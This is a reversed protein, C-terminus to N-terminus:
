VPLDLMVLGAQVALVLSLRAFRHLEELDAQEDTPLEALTVGLSRVVTAIAEDAVEGANRIGDIAALMPVVIAPFEAPSEGRPVPVSLMDFVSEPMNGLELQEDEGLLMRPTLGRYFGDDSLNFAYLEGADLMGPLERAHAAPVDPLSAWAGAVILAGAVIAQGPSLPTPGASSELWTTGDPAQAPVGVVALFTEDGDRVEPRPAPNLWVAASRVAQRQFEVESPVLKAM